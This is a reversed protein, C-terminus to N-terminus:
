DDDESSLHIEVKTGSPNGDPDKLDFIQIVPEGSNKNESLHLREETIQLGYSHHKSDVQVKQAAIKRGVGNDEIIIETNKEKKLFSIQIWADGSKKPLLGHWIANEVFPQVLMGPIRINEDILKPDVKIEYTFPREFRLQELEIYLNLMKLEQDLSITESQSQELVLRILRSFKALYNYAQESDNQLVFHQISNIANFIFHPNMQARLASLRLEVIRKETDSKEKARKQIARLRYNTVRWVLIILVLIIMLIFWWTRWFPSLIKFSFEAPHVSEIGDSNIAVIELRYEGPALGAFSIERNATALWKEDGGLLRYKYRIGQPDRFCLGEVFVRITNDSYSFITQSDKRISDKGFLVNTIYVPPGISDRMLDKMDIWCLGDNSGMWLKNDHCLIFKVEDSLLGHTANFTRLNAKGTQPDFNMILTIGHNTGVCVRGFGDISIARCTNSSIGEAEGFHWKKKEKIAYVGDGRTAIWLFGSKDECIEDIRSKIGCTSDGLYIAQSGKLKWLGNLAGLWITGDKASYATTFRVNTSSTSDKEIRSNLWIMGSISYFMVGGSVANSVAGKFHGINGITQIINLSSDMVIIGSASVIISDHLTVIAETPYPCNTKPNASIFRNEVDSTPDFISVGGKERGIIVKHKKFPILGKINPETFGESPTLYGFRIQPLYFVGEGVTAFWYGQENDEFVCSITKGPLYLKRETNFKGKPCLYTGGFFVSVWVNNERDEEVSIINGPFEAVEYKGNTDVCYLKNFFSFLIRKDHMEFIQYNTLLTKIDSLDITTHVENHFFTISRAYDSMCAYAKDHETTKEWVLKFHDTIEPVQLAHPVNYKDVPSVKFLGRTFLGGVIVGGVSDIEFNYSNKQGNKYISVLSDNAPIANFKNGDFYSLAGSFGQAWIRQSNDEKMRFITNDTLGDETTFSQFQCGNYRCVGADTCMWLYGAHDQIIKYVESSPLGDRVSLHRFGGPEYNTQSFLSVFLFTCAFFIPLAKLYYPKM